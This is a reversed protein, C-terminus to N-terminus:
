FPAQEFSPKSPDIYFCVIGNFKEEMFEFNYYECYEKVKSNFKQATNFRSLTPYERNFKDRLTKRCIPTGDFKQLEMFEIFENGLNNKLKRYELNVKDSEVLGNKLYFQVCRLMFNDFKQWEEKSWESFLQHGFEREPTYKANFYNAIEVEFVRRYHSDGEGKVTYNTTISIKPSEKFPIQYADKGKKEITMGNTVISFLNKFSFNSSVDDLLFIQTDNNVNQYAFQGKPDFKKGDEIVLNKIHGIAKHILGKGSGGNPVGDSIMEDNFIIVKPNSESQFSHMLYGIVSKLTYYREKNKGSVCWIFTKFEGDSEDNLVINRKIIQNKWILDDISKYDILKCGNENIEVASNEYYVYSKDKTDKNVKVNMTKIMSLYNASFNNNNNAMLEFADICGRNRLDTLTMDKIKSEGFISIFNEDKKIFLFTDSTDDPYYKAIQHNELYNLFRFTALKIVERETYYWFENPNVKGLELEFQEELGEIEGVIEKVEEINKDNYVLKKIKNVKQTDEFKKIGFNNTQKYASDILDNIERETFDKSIYNYCYNKATDKSVGFNNFASSLIFLNNNRNTGTTWKKNFWTIIRKSIEDMDEIPVNIKEYFIEKPVFRDTFMKSEPNKYIDPDYSYYTARAIDKTSEDTVGYQNYHKQLETYFSKYDKDSGVLPIKVLVKLGDGSPSIFASMTFEDKSVDQKTKLVDPLHDFDLIALGSSQILNDNGRTTFTGGFGILPLERKAKDREVKNNIHVRVDKIQQSYAGTEIEELVKFVQMKKTPAVSNYKKYISVIM